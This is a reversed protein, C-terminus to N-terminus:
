GWNFEQNCYECRKIDMETFQEECSPCICIQYGQEDTYNSIFPKVPIYKKIIDEIVYITAIKENLEEVSNHLRNHFAKFQNLWEESPEFNDILQLKLKQFRELMANQEVILSIRSEEIEALAKQLSM